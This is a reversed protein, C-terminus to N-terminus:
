AKQSKSFLVKHPRKESSFYNGYLTNNDLGECVVNKQTGSSADVAERLKRHLNIKFFTSLMYFTHKLVAFILM